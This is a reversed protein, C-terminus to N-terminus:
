PRSIQQVLSSLLQNTKRQEALIGFLLSAQLSDAPTGLQQLDKPEFLGAYNTQFYDISEQLEAVIKDAEEKPVQKIVANTAITPTEQAQEEKLKQVKEEEELLKKAKELEKAKKGEAAKGMLDKIGM